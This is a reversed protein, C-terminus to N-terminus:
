SKYNKFQSTHIPSFVKSNAFQLVQIVTYVKIAMMAISGWKLYEISLVQIM